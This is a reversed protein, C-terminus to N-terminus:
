RRREGHTGGLLGALDVGINRLFSATCHRTCWCPLRSSCVNASQFGIYSNCSPRSTSSRRSNTTLRAATNQVGQLRRYLNDSIGYLPSNCFDLRTLTKVGYNGCAFRCPLLKLPMQYDKNVMFM